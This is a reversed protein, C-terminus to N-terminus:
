NGNLFNKEQIVNRILFHRNKIAGLIEDLAKITDEIGKLEEKLSVFSSDGEIFTDVDGIRTLQIQFPKEKELYEILKKSAKGTYYMWLHNKLKDLHSQLKNRKDTFIKKYRLYKCLDQGSKVSDRIIQEPQLNLDETAEIIIRHFDLDQEKELQEM